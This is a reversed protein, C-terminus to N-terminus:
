VVVDYAASVVRADTIEAYVEAAAFMNVEYENLFRVVAGAVRAPSTRELTPLTTAPVGLDASLMLREDEPIDALQIDLIIRLTKETM